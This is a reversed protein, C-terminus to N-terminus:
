ELRFPPYLDTVLLFAYADVRLCWRMVGVVYNFLGQPYRGTFLIAFWAIIIAVLAALGLIALVLYHPIALFWKVLPLGTKLQTAVEPYPIEVRVAQEQDTSPYADTLLAFYSGVRLGFKTLNVNWDFWWRPYKRRFLLMLVTPVFLIGGTTLAGRWTEDGWVTGSVLVLIIAIPIIAFPRFFSTLRNLKRGPYEIKLTVPYDM